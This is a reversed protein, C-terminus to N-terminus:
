RCGTQRRHIRQWHGRVSAFYRSPPDNGAASEFLETAKAFDRARWCELGRAYTATRIGQEQTEQNKGALPEYVGIPEDRGQM